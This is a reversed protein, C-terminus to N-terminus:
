EIVPCAGAFCSEPRVLLGGVPNEAGSQGGGGGGVCVCEADIRGTYPRQLTGVPIEPFVPFAPLNM